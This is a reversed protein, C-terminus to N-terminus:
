RQYVVIWHVPFIAPVACVRIEKLQGGVIERVRALSFRHLHYEINYVAVRNPDPKGFFLTHLYLSKVWRMGREIQDECCISIVVRGGPKTVRVLEGVVREPHLVHSFLSSAVVRDFTAEPFPLHEADAHLINAGNPLRSRAQKVMHQSLDVGYRNAGPLKSLLQGAGCGVDLLHEGAQADLCRLVTSVRKREVWRVIGRPQRNVAEPDYRRIMQENWEFFHEPAVSDPM